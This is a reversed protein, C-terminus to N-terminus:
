KRRPKEGEDKLERTYSILSRGWDLLVIEKLDELNLTKLAKKGGFGTKL